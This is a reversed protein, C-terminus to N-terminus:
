TNGSKKAGGLWLAINWKQKMRIRIDLLILFSLGLPWEHCARSFGYNKKLANMMLIVFISAAGATYWASGGPAPFVTFGLGIAGARGSNERETDKPAGSEVRQM